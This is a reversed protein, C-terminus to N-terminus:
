SKQEGEKPKSKVQSSVSIIKNLCDNQQLLRTYVHGDERFDTGALVARSDTRCYIGYIITAPTSINKSFIISFLGNKVM